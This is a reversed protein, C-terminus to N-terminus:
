SVSALMYAYFYPTHKERVSREMTVELRVEAQDVDEGTHWHLPLMAFHPYRGFQTVLGLATDFDIKIHRSLCHSPACQTM